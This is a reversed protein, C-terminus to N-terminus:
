SNPTICSQAVVTGNTTEKTQARAGEADDPHVAWVHQRNVWKKAKGELLLYVLCAVGLPLLFYLARYALLAAFISATSFQHQLLTMFVAELVGIGAPIQAIMGAMGSILLLGLVTSYSATPPLLLFILLAMLSWNTTALLVQGLALRASPLTIEYNYIKWSRRQAFRCAYLYASAVLLLAFGIWQLATVSLEWSKPLQVLRLSFIVGAVIIYGLTNTFVSLSIIQTITSIRLGLRSYLRYRLAVGGIWSSLNINFAYCVFAVPLVQRAPLSHRTYSRGLLDYCSFVLYSLFAIMMGLALTGLQYARLSEKVEQWELNEFLIFLLVAMAIFLCLALLKKAGQWKTPAVPPEPTHPTSTNRSM